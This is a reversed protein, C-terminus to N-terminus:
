DNMLTMMNISLFAVFDVDCVAYSLALHQLLISSQRNYPGFPAQAPSIVKQLM